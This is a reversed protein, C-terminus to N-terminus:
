ILYKAKEVEIFKILKYYLHDLGVPEDSSHNPLYYIFSRWEEPYNLRAWVIEVEELKEKISRNTNVTDVLFGIQWKKVAKIKVEQLSDTDHETSIVKELSVLFNSKSDTSLDLEVLLSDDCEGLKGAFALRNAEEITLWNQEVGVLATSWDLNIDNRSLINM